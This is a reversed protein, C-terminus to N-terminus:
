IISPTRSMIYDAEKEMVLSRLSSLMTRRLRNSLRRTFEERSPFKIGELQLIAAADGVVSAFQYLPPLGSDQSVRSVVLRVFHDPNCSVCSGVDGRTSEDHQHESVAIYSKVGWFKCVAELQLRKVARKRGTEDCILVFDDIELGLPVHHALVYDITGVGSLVIQSVTVLGGISSYYHMAIAELSDRIM